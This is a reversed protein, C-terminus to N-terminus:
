RREESQTITIFRSIRPDLDKTPIREYERRFEEWVVRLTEELLVLAEPAAGTALGMFESLFREEFGPMSYPVGQEGARLKRFLGKVKGAPLAFSSLPLDLLRRAWFNFLVPRFTLEPSRALMEDPSFIGWLRELLADLVMLRRLISLCQAFESAWQFDRYDGHEEHGAYFMPRPELLGLLTGGWHKGWFPPPFGQRFFWSGEVWTEAEWKLKLVLGSGVRFISALPHTRLTQEASLIDKGCIRELALNLYSAARRCAGTLTDFDNGPSAEASLIQNCLGAFEIRLRDLLLPDDIRAIIGTFVNDTGSHYLPFAPVLARIEPDSLVHPVEATKSAKLTDPDLPTYVTVAEEFPLFGQEALRMNRQRYLEEELEARLAGQIGLLLGQYRHFDVRAMTRIVEEIFDRQEPDAVRVHLMGDLTFFGEPLDYTDDKSSSVVVEISQSFLYQCFSEGEGMLWEALQSHDAEQLRRMWLTTQELEIRDKRWLELDLLYQWQDQSALELLPLCDEGGVKKVLWFFDAPSMGQVLEKPNENDLVRKLALTSSLAGLETLLRERSPPARHEAKPFEGM